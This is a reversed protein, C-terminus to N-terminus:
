LPSLCRETCYVGSAPVKGWPRAGLVADMVLSPDSGFAEAVCAWAACHLGSGPLHRPSWAERLHRSLPELTAFTRKLVQLRRTRIRKADPGWSVLREVAAKLSPAASAGTRVADAPHSVCAAKQLHERVDQVSAPILMAEEATARSSQQFLAPGKEERSWVPGLNDCGGDSIQRRVRM